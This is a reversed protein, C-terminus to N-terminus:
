NISRLHQDFRERDDARMKLIQAGILCGMKTRGDNVLAPEYRVLAADAEIAGTALELVIRLSRQSQNLLEDSIRAIPLLIAVGTASIDRTYGHFTTTCSRRSRSGAEVMAVKLRLEARRRPACFHAGAIANIKNGVFRILSAM